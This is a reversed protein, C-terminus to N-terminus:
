PHMPEKGSVTCRRLLRRQENPFDTRAHMSCRNDWMLLDGAQWEHEYIIREDESIDFLTELIADSEARDLGEIRATMMRNVYLARKGTVPHTIFIPQVHHRAGSLDVNPDVRCRQYDYIQHVKRGELRDRLERPINNYAEYMNAIRTLGGDSSVEIGYLITAINPIEYFCTDHHFWMEGEGFAAAGKPPKGNELINTVLMVSENYTDGPSKRLRPGLTRKGLDGFTTAFRVQDEAKLAQRRFLLVIHRHFADLIEKRSSEDIPRTLDMGQIEAGITRSLPKMSLNM